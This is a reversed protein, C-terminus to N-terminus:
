RYAKFESSEMEGEVHARSQPEQDMAVARWLRYIELKRLAM